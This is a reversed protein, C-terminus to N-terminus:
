TKGVGRIMFLFGLHGAQQIPNSRAM